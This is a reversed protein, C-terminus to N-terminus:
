KSAIQQVDYYSELIIKTLNTVNTTKFINALRTEMCFEEFAFFPQRLRFKSFQEVYNFVTWSNKIKFTRESDLM